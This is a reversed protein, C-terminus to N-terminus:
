EIRKGNWSYSFTESEDDVAATNMSSTGELTAQDVPMTMTSTTQAGEAKVTFTMKFSKDTREIKGEIPSIAMVSNVKSKASMEKDVSLEVISYGKLIGKENEMLYLLGKSAEAADGKETWEYLGSVPSHRSSLVEQESAPANDKLFELVSDGLDVSAIKSFGAHARLANKSPGGAAYWDVSRGTVIEGNVTREYGINAYVNGSRKNTHSATYYLATVDTASIPKVEGPQSIADRNEDFWLGLPALESGDVKGNGDHDLTALAEYGNEWPTASSSGDLSATKQGGFTWNGFLQSARTITGTHEPDYVVLPANKSARWEYWQNDSAPNLPFQTFVVEADLEEGFLLSIPSDHRITALVCQPNVFGNINNGSRGGIAQCNANFAVYGTGSPNLYGGFMSNWCSENLQCQNAANQIFPKACAPLTATAHYHVGYNGGSNRINKVAWTPCCESEPKFCMGCSNMDQNGGDCVGCDDLKKNGCHGSCDLVYCCAGAPDEIGKGFCDGFCDKDENNGDCRGCDDPTAESSCNHGDNAFTAAPLSLLCLCSVTCCLLYRLNKM